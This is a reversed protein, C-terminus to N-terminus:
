LLGRKARIQSNATRKLLSTADPDYKDSPHEVEYVPLGGRAKQEVRGFNTPWVAARFRYWARMFVVSADLLKGCQQM